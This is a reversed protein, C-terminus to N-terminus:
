RRRGFHRLLHRLGRLPRAPADSDPCLQICDYAGGECALTDRVRTTRCDGLCDYAARRATKCDESSHDLDCTTRATELLGSCQEEKCTRANDRADSRCMRQGMRCDSVCIPDKPPLPERVPCDGLCSSATERCLDVAPQAESRCEVVCEDAADWATRCDTSRPDAQCTTHATDILGGCNDKRCQSAQAFPGSLCDRLEQKCDFKCVPDTAPRRGLLHANVPSAIVFGALAVSSLFFLKHMM